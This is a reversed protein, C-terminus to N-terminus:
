GKRELSNAIKKLSASIEKFKEDQSKLVRSVKDEFNDQAYEAFDSIDLICRSTEIKGKATKFHVAVEVPTNGLAALLGGYQGWMTKWKGGPALYSMGHRLPGDEWNKPSEAKNPVIGWAKHPFYEPLSFSIDYAPGFGVNEIILDIVSGGQWNPKLYMVVWPKYQAEITKETAEAAQKTARAVLFTAIALFGTALAVIINVLLVTHQM